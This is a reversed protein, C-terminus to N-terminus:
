RASFHFWTIGIARVPQGKYTAPAFRARTIMRACAVRDMDVSGSRAYIRCDSVRGQENVEFIMVTKGSARGRLVSVPVDHHTVWTSPSTRSRAPTVSTPVGKATLAACASGPDPVALPDVPRCEKIKGQDDTGVVFAVGGNQMAPYVLLEKGHATAPAAMLAAIMLIARM